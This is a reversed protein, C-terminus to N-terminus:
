GPGRRLRDSEARWRKCGRHGPLRHPWSSSRCDVMPTAKSTAPSGAPREGSTSGRGALREFEFGLGSDPDAYRIVLRRPPSDNLVVLCGVCFWTSRDLHIGWWGKGDQFLQWHAEVDTVQGLPRERDDVGPVDVIRIIGDGFLEIRPHRGAQVAALADRSAPTAVWTGLLEEPAPRTRSYSSVYPDFQCGVVVLLAIALGRGAQHEIKVRFAENSRGGKL